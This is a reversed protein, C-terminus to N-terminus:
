YFPNLNLIGAAEAELRPNFDTCEHHGLVGLRGCIDRVGVEFEGIVKNANEAWSCTSQCLVLQKYARCVPAGICQRFLKKVSCM